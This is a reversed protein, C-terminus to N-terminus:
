AVALAHKEQPIGAFPNFHWVFSQDPVNLYILDGRRSAPILAVVEEALDGHPDFLALGEGHEIDQLVLTKLLTSKGTGTKGIVYMHSRRDARRTRFPTAAKRHNIRAFRTLDESSRM